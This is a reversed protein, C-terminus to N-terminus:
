SLSKKSKGQMGTQSPRNQARITPLLFEGGSPMEGTSQATANARRQRGQFQELQYLRPNHTTTTTTAAGPLDHSEQYRVPQGSTKIM